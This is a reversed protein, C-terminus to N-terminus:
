VLEHTVKKFGCYNPAKPDDHNHKPDICRLESHEYGTPNYEPVDQTTDYINTHKKLFYHFSGKWIDKFASTGSIRQEQEQRARMVSIEEDTMDGFKWLWEARIKRRLYIGGVFKIEKKTEDPDKTGLLKRFRFAM